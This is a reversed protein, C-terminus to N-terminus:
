GGVYLIPNQLLSEGVHSVKVSIALTYYVLGTDELIDKTTSIIKVHPRITITTYHNPVMKSTRPPSLWNIIGVMSATLGFISGAYLDNVHLTFFTSFRLLYIVKSVTDLM